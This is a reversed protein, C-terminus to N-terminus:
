SQTSHLLLLLLLGCHCTHHGQWGMVMAAWFLGDTITKDTGDVGLFGGGGGHSGTMALPRTQSALARFLTRWSPLVM